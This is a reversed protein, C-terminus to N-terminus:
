RYGDNRHHIAHCHEETPGTEIVAEPIIGSGNGRVTWHLADKVNDIITGSFFLLGVVGVGAAVAFMNRMGVVDAVLGFIVGAAIMGVDFAGYVVSFVSGREHSLNCDTVLATLAPLCLSMGIGNLLAAAMLGAMTEVKVLILISFIILIFPYFFTPGRGFRDILHSSIFRFVIVALSNVLFFMGANLGLETKLLIPLFTYVAGVIIANILVAISTVLNVRRLMIKLYGTRTPLSEDARAESICFVLGLGLFALVTCTVMLSIYGWHTFILMGALPAIGFAVNTAISMHGIIEGRQEAPAIDTILTPSATTFFALGTGHLFRVLVLYWINHSVIYFLPIVTFIILGIVLPLRRSKTDTIRGAPPRLALVGIAFAGLVTGIKVNSYGLGALYIPLTPLLMAEGFFFLFSIVFLVLLNKNQLIIKMTESENAVAFPMPLTQGVGPTIGWLGTRIASAHTSLM